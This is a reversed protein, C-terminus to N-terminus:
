SFLTPSNNPHSLNLQLPVSPVPNPSCQLSLSVPGPHLKLFVLSQHAQTVNSLYLSQALTFRSFCSLNTPKPSMQSVCLSPWPSAPSVCSIPPRPDCKLSVSFPGPYLKLFVLPQHDQTVNSLCLSQALTFNSFSLIGPLFPAPSVHSVPSPHFQLSM